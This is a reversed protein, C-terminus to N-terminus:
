AAASPSLKVPMHANQPSFDLLLKTIGGEPPAHSGHLPHTPSQRHPACSQSYNHNFFPLAAM